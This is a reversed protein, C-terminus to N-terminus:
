QLCRTCLLTDPDIRRGLAGKRVFYDTYVNTVHHLSDMGDGKSFYRINEERNLLRIGNLSVSGAELELADEILANGATENALWWEQAEFWADIFRKMDERRSEIVEEHTALVDPILGPTDKSSFWISGGQAVAQSVYPEWCHGADIEGAALSAPVDASEVNLLTVDASTHGSQELWASVFLEGFGGLNTSVRQGQIDGASELPVRGVIADGGSSEDTVLCVRVQPSMAAVTILDGLAVAVIDYTQATFEALMRDTDEPLSIEVELGRTEFYGREDAIILPYYGPWKDIAVRLAM